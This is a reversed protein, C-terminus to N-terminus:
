TEMIESLSLNETTLERSAGGNEFLEMLEITGQFWLMLEEGSTTSSQCGLTKLFLIPLRLSFITEIIVRMLSFSLM